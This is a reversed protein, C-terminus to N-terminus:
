GILDPKVKLRKYKLSFDEFFDFVSCLDEGVDDVLSVSLPSRLLRLESWSAASNLDGGGFTVLNCLDEVDVGTEVVDEGGVVATSSFPASPLKSEDIPAFKSSTNPMNFTGTLFPLFGELDGDVGELAVLLELLFSAGVCDFALMLPLLATALLVFSVLFIWEAGLVEFALLM